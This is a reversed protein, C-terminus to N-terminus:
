VKEDTPEDIIETLPVWIAAEVFAGGPIMSVTATRHISINKSDVFGVNEFLDKARQKYAQYRRKEEDRPLKRKFGGLIVEKFNDSM